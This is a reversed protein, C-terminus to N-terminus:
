KIGEFIELLAAFFELFYYLVYLPSFISSEFSITEIASSIDFLEILKYASLKVLAKDVAEAVAEEDLTAALFIGGLYKDVSM